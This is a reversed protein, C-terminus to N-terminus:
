EGKPQPEIIERWHTADTMKTVWSVIRVRMPDDKPYAPSFIEVRKGYSPPDIEVDRWGGEAPTAADKADLAASFEAIADHLNRMAGWQVLEQVAAGEPPEPVPFFCGEKLAYMVADNLKQQPSRNTPM